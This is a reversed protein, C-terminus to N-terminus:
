ESVEKELSVLSDIAGSSDVAVASDTAVAPDVATEDHSTSASNLTASSELIDESDLNVVESNPEADPLSAIMTQLKKSDVLGKDIYRQVTRKDIMWDAYESM